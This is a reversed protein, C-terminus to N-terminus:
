SFGEARDHETTSEADDATDGGSQERAEDVGILEDNTSAGLDEGAGGAEGAGRAEDAGPNSDRQKAQAQEAEGDLERDSVTPDALEEEDPGGDHADNRADPHETGSESASM